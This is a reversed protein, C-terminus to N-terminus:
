PVQALLTRLQHWASIHHECDENNGKGGPRFLIGVTTTPFDPSFIIEPLDDLFVDCGMEAIKAIKAERTELFYINSAEHGRVEELFLGTSRLRKYVWDRAAEHLNYSPGAYPRLSRHSVIMLEHGERTLAQMTEIAGEFPQACAMGPGYLEGQFATWEEERGAKRLHDRLGLKTRPLDPPLKFMEDALLAIAEDYCVITNDFDLGIRLPLTGM